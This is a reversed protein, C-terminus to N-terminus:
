EKIAAKLVDAPIQGLYVQGEIVYAPTGSIGLQNGALIDKQLLYRLKRTNVSRILEDLDLDLKEALEQISINKKRGALEFLLDNMPWFKNKSAAYVALLAMKGSGVHFPAKVIPNFKHDMPYNRHVVRIKEPNEAILQRLFYHMKKCQFCQYDVFETIELVPTHAGIWPHGGATVGVPINGSFQPPQFNWYPPFFIWTMTTSILFMATLVLGKTKTKWLFFLDKRTDEILGAGSFRRRILWASFLLALNVGYSVICMICYSGILYTSIVALIVSYASFALSIWFVLSWVRKKEAAKSGAFLLLVLVFSYGVIGWVPVPLNLLISHPSQSVTDCNIARSIACFSKYGVDTYVRYHSIALYISDFLGVVVLLVFSWFYVPFPLPKGVKTYEMAKMKVSSNM